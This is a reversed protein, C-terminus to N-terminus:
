VVASAINEDSALVTSAMSDITNLNSANTSLHRKLTKINSKLTDVHLTVNIGLNRLDNLTLNSAQELNNIGRQKFQEKYNSLHQWDLWQEVSNIRGRQIAEGMSSTAPNEGFVNDQVGEHNSITSICDGVVDPQILLSDLINVLEDFSPRKMNDVCWCDLMASHINVPCGDPCPLRMGAQVNKIVDDNTMDWYPTEGYSMVEWMVIGYSWVDSAHTFQRSRICEPATWRVAIKGGQTTYTAHPNNELTRSLGFDSVKCVLDQNILINRAALDRHIYKMNSLYKMGSAIGRLMNLLELVSHRGISDRLYADLSGLKMYETIIMAPKSKTVVGKLQVIYPDDFQAITWAEKLFNRHDLSTTNAKLRKVAVQAQNRKLGTRTTLTGRCVEAFEGKGITEDVSVDSREVEQDFRPCHLEPDPYDVYIRHGRPPLNVILTENQLLNQTHEMMQHHNQGGGGKVQPKSSQLCLLKGTKRYQCVFLLVVVIVLLGCGAAIIIPLINNTPENTVPSNTPELVKPASTARNTRIEYSQSYPGFGASTRARVRIKYKTEPQLDRLTISPTKVQHLFPPQVNKPHESVGVQVQYETIIGNPQKPEAWRITIQTSQLNIISIDGVVSPESEKTLITTNLRAAATPEPFKQSVGNTALLTFRYWTHPTLGTVSSHISNSDLSDPFRVPWECPSWKLQNETLNSDFAATSCSLRYKLDKRGGTDQPRDWLLSVSNSLLKSSTFTTPQSPPKSCAVDVEEGDARAYGNYCPCHNLQPPASRSRIVVSPASSPDVGSNPPCLLCQDVSPDIKYTGSPCVECQQENQQYGSKCQCGGTLIQWKGNSSCHYTPDGLSSVAANDVCKGSKAVLAAADAGAVSKGFVALNAITEHCYYYYLRIAHVSMCAGEDQVAIYVGSRKLQPTFQFKRTNIKGDFNAAVTDIKVYPKEQWPPFTSSAIDEDSEYYFLNFTEKCKGRTDYDYDMEDNCRTITFDIEIHLRKANKIPIYPSRIWNDNDVEGIQCIQYYRITNSYDKDYGSVEEWGPLDYNSYQAWLLDSTADKTDYLKYFDAITSPLILLLIYFWNMNM